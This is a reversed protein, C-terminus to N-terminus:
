RNINVRASSYEVSRRSVQVQDMAACELVVKGIHKGSQMLRLANEMQSFPFTRVPAIEKISGARVLGMVEALLERALMPAEREMLAVDVSAFMVNKKFQIMDLKRNKSIDKKGLEIFRGFPAVCRWTEALAEGTLSNLIVDIGRGCTLKMVASSFYLDRSSFIQDDKIGYTAILHERKERTGVTAFINAGIMQAIQIAAQGVGGAASHILISEGRRLNSLNVIGYYASVYVIPISAATAFNMDDPIRYTVGGPNRVHTSFAGQCLANVRDGVKLHQVTAGVKTVIGACENGLYDDPIEGLCVLVDRFNLGVAHIEIEVENDVLPLEIDTNDVFFLSDLSGLSGIEVKLPRQPQALSQTEPITPALKARTAVQWNRSEDEIVRKIHLMGGMESFEHDNIDCVKRANFSHEFVKVLLEVTDKAPLNATPDLDVTTCIFGEQEARLCRAFGQFLSLEPKMCVGATGGRTIWLIGASDQTLRHLIKFDSTSIDALLNDDLETLSLCAQGRFDNDQLSSFACLEASYGRTELVSKTAFALEKSLGSLNNPHVITVRRSCSIAKPIQPHSHELRKLRTDENDAGNEATMSIIGNDTEGVQGISIRTMQGVSSSQDVFKIGLSQLVNSKKLLDSWRVGELGTGSERTGPRDSWNPLVRTIISFSLPLRTMELFILRGGPKLLRRINSITHGIKRKPLKSLLVVDYRLNGISQKELDEDIDLQRFRLMDKWPSYKKCAAEFFESKNRPDTFTYSKFRPYRHKEYCSLSRLAPTTATSYGDGIELYELNPYKHSLLALYREMQPYASSLGMGDAFYDPLLDDKMMLSLPDTEGRLVSSLSQGLRVLIRGAANSSHSFENQLQIMKFIINSDEFDPWTQAQSSSPVLRCQEQLFRFFIRHSEHMNNIDEVKIERLAQNCFYYALLESELIRESNWDPNTRPSEELLVRLQRDTLMDIDPEWSVAVCHKRIRSEATVSTTSGRSSSLTTCKMNEIHLLSTSSEEDVVVIDAFAERRGHFRAEAAVTFKHGAKTLMDASFRIDEIFTPIYPDNISKTDGQCLAPFMMHMFSDMTTPHLFHEFEFECPMTVSTDPVQVVGVAKNGGASFDVINRFAPGYELGFAALDEYLNVRDGKSTCAQRATRLRDTCYSSLYNVETASNIQNLQRENIVAILGRCHETWSTEVSYSFICFENWTDSSGLSSVSSPRMSLVVEVGDETEPVVLARSIYLNRITYGFVSQHFNPKPTVYLSHLQKAAQLAMCIYGAAPYVVTGQVVHSRIWPQESLRIFNRWRPENPNWDPVPAGLVDTRPSHRFRHGASLRSESWYKKKHNWRYSPLDVLVSSCIERPNPFQVRRMSVPYGRLFLSGAVELTTIRADKDRVLSSEYLVGGSSSGSAKGLTQKIPGALTAHPGIEVLIDIETAKVFKGGQNPASPLHYLGELAESFRVCSAMNKVWYEPGLEEHKISYGSVSSVMQINKRNGKPMVQLGSLMERYEDSVYLMHHSHYATNVKLRRTFLGGEDLAKHMEAITSDDGSLTVSSPSNVCAVVARGSSSGFALIYRQADRESIGVALMGGKFGMQQLKSSCIGRYYAIQMASKLSIAGITYAAAIEGSSHGVVKSPHINWSSYLEVLAIQMATCLPQSIAAENIRSNAEDRGLEEACCEM